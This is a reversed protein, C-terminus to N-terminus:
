RCEEYEKIAVDVAKLIIPNIDCGYFGACSFSGVELVKLEGNVRRCIDLSWIPDPDYPILDLLKQGYSIVDEPAGENRVFKNSHKYQTSAIIQGESVILRWESVLYDKKAILVLTEPDCTCNWEHIKEKSNKFVCGTFTKFGSCPRIFMGDYEEHRRVFDGYPLIIYESNLLEKGFRPYYYTCDFKPFNCYAGPIWKAKRQILRALQLSGYFIVCDDDKFANLYSDYSIGFNVIKYPMRLDNLGKVLLDADGQFAEPEILWKVLFTM